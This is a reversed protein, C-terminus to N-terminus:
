RAAVARLRTMAANASATADTMVVRPILAAAIARAQTAGGLDELLRLIATPAAYTRDAPVIVASMDVRYIHAVLTSRGPSQITTALSIGPAHALWDIMSPTATNIGTVYVIAVPRARELSARIMSATFVFFAHERPHPDMAVVDPAPQGGVLIGLPAAPSTVGLTAQLLHLHYRGDLVLATENAQVAGFMVSSGAPANADLWKAVSTALDSRALVPGTIAVKASVSGFTGLSLAVVLAVALFRGDAVVPAIRPWRGALRQRATDRAPGALVAGVVAGVAGSGIVGLAGKTLRTAFGARAMLVDIAVATAAAIAAGALLTARRAGRLAEGLILWGGAGLGALLVLQSIDNRPPEGLVAVLVLWPLSIVVAVLAEIPRDDGRLVAVAAAVAGLGLLIIPLLDSAWTRAWREMQPIDLLTRGAQVNARSFAVFLVAMWAIALIGAVALVRRRDALREDLWARLRHFIGGAIGVLVLLVGGGVLAAALPVLLSRDLGLAFVRGTTDAYWSYWWSVLPVTMLLVLGAALAIRGAPRRLAIGTIFPAVLLVLSAEKTLFALAFVVGALLGRRVLGTEIASTALALYALALAAEPVDLRATRALVSLSIWGALVATTLIAAPAGFRWAFRAGLLLVATASVADLLHGWAWPDIHAAVDPAAVLMPWFPAHVLFRAGFATLPGLGALSNQGIALYKAEDFSPYPHPLLLAVLGYVVAIGIIALVPTAPRATGPSLRSM